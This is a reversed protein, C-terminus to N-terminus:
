FSHVLERAAASWRICIPTTARPAFMNAGNWMVITVSEETFGFAIANMYMHIVFLNSNINSPLLLWGLLVTWKYQSHSVKFLSRYVENFEPRYCYSYEINNDSHYSVFIM